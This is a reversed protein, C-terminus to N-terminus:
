STSNTLRSNQRPESRGVNLMLVRRVEEIAKLNQHAAHGSPVILESKAGEM